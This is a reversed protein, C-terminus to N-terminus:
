PDVWIFRTILVNIYTPIYVYVYIYIIYYKYIYAWTAVARTGLSMPHCAGSRTMEVQWLALDQVDFMSAHFKFIQIAMFHWSNTGSWTKLIEDLRSAEVRQSSKISLTRKRRCRKSDKTPAVVQESITSGWINSCPGVHLYQLLKSIFKQDGMCNTSNSSLCIYLSIKKPSFAVFGNTPTAFFTKPLSSRSKPLNQKLINKFLKRLKGLWGGNKCTGDRAQLWMVIPPVCWFKGAHSLCRTFTTAQIRYDYKCVCARSFLVFMPISFLLMYPTIVHKFLGKVISAMARGHYLWGRGFSVSSRFFVRGPQFILNSFRKQLKKPLFWVNRTGVKNTINKRNWFQLIKCTPGNNKIDWSDMAMGKGHSRYEVVMSMIPTVLVLYIQCSNTNASKVHFHCLYTCM